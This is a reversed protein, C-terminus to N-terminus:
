ERTSRLGVDCLLFRQRGHAVGSWKMWIYEAPSPPELGDRGLQKLRACRHDVGVELELYIVMLGGESGM